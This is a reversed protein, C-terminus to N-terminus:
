GQARTHVFEHMCAHTHKQRSILIAWGQTRHVCVMDYVRLIVSHWTNTQPIEASNTLHKAIPRLVQALRKSRCSSPHNRWTNRLSSTSPSPVSVDSSNLLPRLFSPIPSYRPSLSTRLHAVHESCGGGGRPREGGNPGVGVRGYGVRPMICFFSGCFFFGTVVGGKGGM